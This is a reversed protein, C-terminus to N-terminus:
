LLFYFMEFERKQSFLKINLKLDINLLTVKTQLLTGTIKSGKQNTKLRM